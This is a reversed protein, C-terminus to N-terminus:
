SIVSLCTEPFFNVVHHLFEIELFCGQFWCSPLLVLPFSSAAAILRSVFLPIEVEPSLLWSPVFLLEKTVPVVFAVLCHMLLCGYFNFNVIAILQLFVYLQERARIIYM